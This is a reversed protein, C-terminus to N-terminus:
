SFDEREFFDEQQPQIDQMNKEHKVACWYKETERTIETAYPLLGNAYGCYMCNMKEFSNLRSLHHRDIVIYKNRDVLEMGYLRFAVHHYIELFVDLLFLPMVMGWIFPTSLMLKWKPRKNKIEQYLSIENKVPLTDEIEEEIAISTM